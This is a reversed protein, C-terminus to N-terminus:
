RISISEIEPEYSFFTEYSTLHTEDWNAQVGKKLHM